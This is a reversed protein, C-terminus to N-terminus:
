GIDRSTDVSVEDSLDLKIASNIAAEGRVKPVLLRNIIEEGDFETELDFVVDAMYETTDRHVPNRRGNMCHLVGLSSTQELRDRVANMFSWFETRDSDELPDMPDVVLNSEHPLSKVLSYAHELPSETDVRKISHAATDVGARALFSKITSSSHVTTLYFTRRTDALQSLFLESQSAPNASLVVVSGALIGGDLMQDLPEIGTSLRKVVTM